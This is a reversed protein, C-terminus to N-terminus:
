ENNRDKTISLDIMVCCKYVIFNITSQKFITYGTVRKALTAMRKIM